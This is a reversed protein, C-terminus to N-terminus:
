RKIWGKLNELFIKGTSSSKEPHFQTGVVNKECVLAPYEIGYQSKM